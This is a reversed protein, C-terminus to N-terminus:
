ERCEDRHHIQGDPRPEVGQWTETQKRGSEIPKFADTDTALPVYMTKAGFGAKEMEGLGHKSMAWIWRAFQLADKNAYTMPTSDVPAWACWPLKGYVNTNVFADFFTLVIDAKTHQMHMGIINSM